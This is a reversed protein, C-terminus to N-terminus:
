QAGGSAGRGRGGGGGSTVSPFGTELRPPRPGALHVAAGDGREAAGREQRVTEDGVQEVNGREEAGHVGGDLNM